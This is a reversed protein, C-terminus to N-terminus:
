IYRLGVDHLYVYVYFDNENTKVLDVKLLTLAHIYM